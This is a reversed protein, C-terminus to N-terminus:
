ILWESIKNFDVNFSKLLNLYREKYNSKFIVPHCPYFIDKYFYEVYMYSYEANTAIIPEGEKWSDGIIYYCYFFSFYSNTAIIPELESIRKKSYLCRTYAELPTM